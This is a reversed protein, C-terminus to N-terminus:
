RRSVPEEAAVGVFVTVVGASWVYRCASSTRRASKSMSPRTDDPEGSDDPEQQGAPPSAEGGATM